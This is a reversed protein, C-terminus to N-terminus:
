CLQLSIGAIVSDCVVHLRVVLQLAVCETRFLGLIIRNDLCVKLFPSMMIHEMRSSCLPGKPPSFHMKKKEKLLLVLEAVWGPAEQAIYMGVRCSQRTIWAAEKIIVKSHM